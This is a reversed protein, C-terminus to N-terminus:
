TNEAKMVQYYRNKASISGMVEKTMRLPDAAGNIRRSKVPVTVKEVKLLESKFFTWVRKTSRVNLQVWDKSNLLERARIIDAKRYDPLM